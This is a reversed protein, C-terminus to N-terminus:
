SLYIYVTVKAFQCTKTMSEGQEEDQDDPLHVTTALQERITLHTYVGATPGM